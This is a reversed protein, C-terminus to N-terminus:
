TSIRRHPLQLSSPLFIDGPATNYRLVSHFLHRLPCHDYMAPEFNIVYNPTRDKHSFTAHPQLLGAPPPRSQNIQDEVNTWLPSSSPAGGDGRPVANPNRPSRLAPPFVPRLESDTDNLDGSDSELFRLDYSEDDSSDDCADDMEYRVTYNTRCLLDTEDMTIFIM